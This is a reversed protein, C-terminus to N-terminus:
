LTNYLIYYLILIYIYIINNYVSHFPISPNGLRKKHVDQGGGRPAIPEIFPPFGFFNTSVVKNVVHMSEIVEISYFFEAAM